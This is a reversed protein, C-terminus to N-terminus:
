HRTWFDHYPALCGSSVYKFPEEFQQGARNQVRRPAATDPKMDGPRTTLDLMAGPPGCGHVERNEFGSEAPEELEEKVKLKKTEMVADIISEDEAPRKLGNSDPEPNSQNQRAVPTPEAETNQPCDTVTPPSLHFSVILRNQIHDLFFLPCCLCCSSGTGWAFPRAVLM